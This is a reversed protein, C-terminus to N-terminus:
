RSTRGAVAVPCGSFGEGGALLVGAGRRAREGTGEGVADRVPLGGVGALDAVALGDGDATVGVGLGDDDGAGIGDPVEVAGDDAV